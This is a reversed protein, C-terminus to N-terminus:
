PIFLLYGSKYDQTNNYIVIFKPSVVIFAPNVAATAATPALMNNPSDPFEFIPPIESGVGITIPQMHLLIM